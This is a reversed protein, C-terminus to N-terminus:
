GEGRWRVAELGTRRHDGLRDCETGGDVVDRSEPEVVDALVLLREGRVRELTQLGDGIQADDPRGGRDVTAGRDGEGDLANVGVVDGLQEVLLADRHAGPM